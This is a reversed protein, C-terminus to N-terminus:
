RVMIEIQNNTAPPFLAMRMPVIISDKRLYVMGPSSGIPGRGTAFYLVVIQNPVLAVSEANHGLACCLIYSGSGDVLKFIRKPDGQQTFDIDEVDAITGEFTARFNALLQPRM